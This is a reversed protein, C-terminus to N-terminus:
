ATDEPELIEEPRRGRIIAELITRLRHLLRVTRDATFIEDNYTLALELGGASRLFVFQLDAEKSRRRPLEASRLLGREEGEIRDLAVMVDFLPARDPGRQWGLDRRTRGYPYEEHQFARLVDQQARALLAPVDDGPLLRFRLPVTNIHFGIQGALGPAGRGQTYTGTTVESLGTEALLLLSVACRAVVFETVGHASAAEGFGAALDDAALRIRTGSLASVPPRPHDAPMPVVTSAGDLERLWFERHEAAREPTLRGALWAAADKYQTDLPPLDEGSYLAQWDRQLVDASVGDSILQHMSTLLRWRDGGTRLLDARVLPERGIEFPEGIRAAVFERMAADDAFDHTRLPLPFSGPPHVVQRDGEYTTRLAEHREILREFADALREPDLAGAVDFLDNRHFAGRQASTREIELLLHQAPAVDYIGPGGLSTIPVATEAKATGLAVALEAVTSHTFLTRLSLDVGLEGRVRSLVQIARLSDGGIEFFRDTVGLAPAGLVERWVELLVRETGTRPAVAAAGERAPEIKALATRDIKGNPTLPLRDLVVFDAPVMHQPLEARVHARCQEATGGPELTVFASLQRDRGATRAVVAAARVGPAGDVRREIEGLDVRFGRVKVQSDARGLYELTGEATWRGLDGTRYLRRGPSFPDDLFVRATQEPANLYGRGVCIGSVHIEGRVGQPCVRRHEDLVYLLTNPIPSGIPVTDTTVPEAMVHHTVDDSAETPGYANVVPVGPYEALWRNVQRPLCAEGTVLLHRLDALEVPDPASSWSDLMADLYSPVVELVTVREARVREAFAVPDLQAAEEVIVTRGGAFPAAFMQWVSIDFSNSANQVVVSGEGLGLDAIKAHLHNLMGRHEVMAGKPVGTSGSTYIVYSLASPSAPLGLDGTDQDAAVDDALTELRCGEPARLEAVLRAPDQVALKASSSELMQRMFAPPYNPDIPLYAASCKWLALISEVMLVSRDMVLAVVDGPRVGFPGAFHRALQNARANLTGFTRREGGHSLCLRDPRAAAHRELAQHIHLTEDFALERHGLLRVRLQEEDSLLPLERLATDPAALLTELLAQFDAWLRDIWREDFRGTDFRIAAALTDDQDGLMINLAHVATPLSLDLPEAAPGFPSGADLGFREFEILVDYLHVAPNAGSHRLEATLEEYPYDVHRLGDAFTGRVQDCLERFGHGSDVDVRLPLTRVLMGVLNETGDGARGAISTGLVLDGRESHRSLLAAFASLVSTFLTTGQERAFQRLRECLEPPLAYDRYAGAFTRDATAPPLDLPAPLTTFRDLWYAKAPERLQSARDARRLHYDRYDAGVPSVPALSGAAFATYCAGLDRVLLELSWGDAVIHHTSLTLLHRDEATTVLQARLLPGRALDFPQAAFERATDLDGSPRLDLPVRSPASIRQTLEEGALSFSARPGDHRALVTDLARQLADVDVPGHFTFCRTLNFAVSGGDFQAALWIDRQAASAPFPESSAVALAAPEPVATSLEALHKALAAPTSHDLMTVADLQVGFLTELRALVEISSISDGGLEYFSTDAGTVPVELVEQWVQRVAALHDTPRAPAEVAVGATEPAPRTALKADDIWCRVRDFQYSPLEVRRGPGAARSWDWGAGALYLARLLAEVSDTGPPLAVVDQGREALARSVTSLPGSEVYLVDGEASMKALLRDVRTDVDSLEPEALARRVAEALDVRGAAADLLHKGPGVGVVHKVKLGLGRLMGHLAYAFALEAGRPDGAARGCETYLRDFEADERLAATLEQPVAGRGSVLLVTVAHKADGAPGPAALARALGDRDAATVCHRYRHHARGEVLTRQIDQVSLEPHDDLRRRLAALNAELATPSKGSVPFWCPGAPAPSEAVAPAQELVAHVNTGMVGFSSVGARRVETAPWPRLERTVRVASNGFDILPSTERAHVSPFLLGHRLALVAKVLGVLGSASWTHGINSKVSSLECFGLRDTVAGFARDLAEVEIPDGLRTATGHAEIYGITVPDVGAKAWARGLVEAQAASDPATLTSSRGAVNNAATGRIVAHVPDGDRLAAALPKLLVCAAAEGSGTGDADASFSRTKGDASRIGLDLDDGGLPEGFLNLNVGAALALDADGLVLDNVAQHVALLASSCSSDIMAAPGRLGFVRALRGATASFHTGMVMTPEVVRALQDYEIRTDGIYVSTTSGHLAAPDYGANEMAQYALQLLLRHEPAMNRAEGPAIGFFACDFSDIDEIFGSLQYRADPSLGTAARRGASLERVSDRGATLNALFQETDDAEPLRVALGIVAIDSSM